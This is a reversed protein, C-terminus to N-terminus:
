YGLVPGGDKEFQKMVMDFVRGQYYAVGNEKNPNLLGESYIGVNLNEQARECLEHDEEAVTRAFQFYTQFEESNAAKEHYYDFDMTETPDECPCARFSSMGGGYLSLTTNPFMYIFLGDDTDKSVAIHQSYNHSNRVVYNVQPKYVKSFAPHAYPCHLCEQYGDVMTKWNYKGRYNLCKRPNFKQFDVHKILDELGPFFEEFPATEESLTVFLLGTATLHSRAESGGGLLMWSQLFVARRELSYFARSTYWSAPLTTPNSAM